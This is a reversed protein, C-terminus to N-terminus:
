FYCSVLDNPKVRDYPPDILLAEYEGELNNSFNFLNNTEFYRNTYFFDILLEM